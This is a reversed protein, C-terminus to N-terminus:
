RLFEVMLAVQSPYDFAAQLLRRHGAGIARRARAALAEDDEAQALQMSLRLLVASPSPLPGEDMLMVGYGSPLLTRDSLRWGRDDHFRRWADRVWRGALAADDANGNLRAWAMLGQAAFAYDELGAQGLEGGSGRERARWLRDGDWLRKVLYDRLRQAADRYREGGPLAAGQVLARLALGNWAALRKHDVPLVRGARASLLKQRASALLRRLRAESIELKGAAEAASATIRPLHGAELEPAGQMGWMLRALRLEAPTLLGALTDDDWLYYGGEVGAQDVASLSAVMAGDPSSMERLMFDLTDRAVREYDRRGFVRAARLYLSALLANDYLMKEFHPTQWGPDVTYRFFGGGLQDRLGQSAMRDLTTLLFQKLPPSPTRAYAGILADLQPTMPFKNQEGFGGDMEDALQLAQTVMLAEHVAGQGPRPPPEPAPPVDSLESAAAAAVERLYDPAGAWQRQLDTLLALFREAPLYTLGVLPNGDPTLFVNLPWGAAGRTRTVFDMLRADLAPHLERDVKVSIFRDNLLAAIRPDQYSERQMVHCWYCAFYGISVFLLRNERGARALVEESWPQWDVPDDGHMALYPSDHDALRNSGAVSPSLGPGLWLAIVLVTGNFLSHNM